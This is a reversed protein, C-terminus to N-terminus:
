RLRLAFDLVQKEYESADGINREIEEWESRNRSRRNAIIEPHQEV